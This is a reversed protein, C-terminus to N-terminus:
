LLQTVALWEIDTNLETIQCTTGKEPMTTYQISPNIIEGMDCILGYHTDNIHPLNNFNFEQEKFINGISHLKCGGFTTNYILPDVASIKTDLKIEVNGSFSEPIASDLNSMINSTDITILQQNSTSSEFDYNLTAINGSTTFFFIQIIYHRM